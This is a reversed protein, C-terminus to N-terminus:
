LLSPISWPNPSGAAANTRSSVTAPEGFWHSEISVLVRDTYGVSVPNLPVFLYAVPEAKKTSLKSFGRCYQNSKQSRIRDHSEILVLVRETFGLNM